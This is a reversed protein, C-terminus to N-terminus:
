APISDLLKRLAQEYRAPDSEFRVFGNMIVTYSGKGSVIVAEAQIDKAALYAQDGKDLDTVRDYQEGAQKRQYDFTTAGATKSAMTITVSAIGDGFLCNGQDKLDQGVIESVQAASLPCKPVAEAAADGAGGDAGAQAASSGTTDSATGGCGAAGLLALCIVPGILRRM